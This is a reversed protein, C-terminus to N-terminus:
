AFLVAVGIVLIFIDAIAKMGSSEDDSQTEATTDTGEDEISYNQETNDTTDISDTGTGETSDVTSSTDAGSGDETVEDNAIDKLTIASVEISDLSSVGRALCAPADPISPVPYYVPECAWNGYEAPETRTLNPYLSMGVDNCISNCVGSAQMAIEDATCTESACTEPCLYPLEMLLEGFLAPYTCVTLLDFSQDVEDEFNYFAPVNLYMSEACLSLDAAQFETTTAPQSCTDTDFWPPMAGFVDMEQHPYYYIATYCMEQQTYDGFEVYDGPANSTDYDCIQTIQDGPLLQRLSPV